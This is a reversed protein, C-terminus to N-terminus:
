QQQQQMWHVILIQSQKGNVNQTMSGHSFIVSISKSIRILKVFFMYNSQLVNLSLSRETSAVTFYRYVNCDCIYMTIGCDEICQMKPETADETLKCEFSPGFISSDCKDHIVNPSVAETAVNVKLPKNLPWNPKKKM